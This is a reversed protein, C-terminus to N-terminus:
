VKGIWELDGPTNATCLFEWMDQGKVITSLMKSSKAVFRSLTDMKQAFSQLLKFFIQKPAFLLPKPVVRM